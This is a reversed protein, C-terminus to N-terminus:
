RVRPKLARRMRLTGHSASRPVEDVEDPNYDGFAEEPPVSVSIVDGVKKGTLAAELGPVINEAGHLYELLDNDDTSDVENGDVTLKYTIGIVLSDAVTELSM